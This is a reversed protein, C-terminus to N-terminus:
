RNLRGKSLQGGQEGVLCDAIREAREGRAVLGVDSAGFPMKVLTGVLPLTAVSKRTVM